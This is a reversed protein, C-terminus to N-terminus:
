FLVADGELRGSRFPHTEEAVDLTRRREVRLGGRHVVRQLERGADLIEEGRARGFGAAQVARLIPVSQRDLMEETQAACVGLLYRLQLFRRRRFSGARM